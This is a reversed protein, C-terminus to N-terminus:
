QVEKIYSHGVPRFGYRKFLMCTRKTDIGSATSLCVEKAGREKAWAVWDNIIVYGHGRYPKDVFLIFDQAIKTASWPMTTLVGWLGGVIKGDMILVRLYGDSNAITLALSNMLTPIDVPHNRMEQVEAAYKEALEAITLLDLFTADRMKRETSHM